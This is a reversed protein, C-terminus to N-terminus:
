SEKKNSFYHHIILIQIKLHLVRKLEIFFLIFVFFKRKKTLCTACELVFIGNKLINIIDLKLNRKRESHRILFALKESISQKQYM